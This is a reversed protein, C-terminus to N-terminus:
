MRRETGRGRGRSRSRVRSRIRTLRRRRGGRLNLLLNVLVLLVADDLHHAQEVLAPHLILNLPSPFLVVWEESSRRTIPAIV